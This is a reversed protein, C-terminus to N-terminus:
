GQMQPTNKCFLNWISTKQEKMVFHQETAKNRIM